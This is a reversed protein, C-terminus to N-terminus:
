GGDGGGDRSGCFCPIMGLREAGDTERPIWYYGVRPLAYPTSITSPNTAPTPNSGVVKLNHPDGWRGSYGQEKRRKPPM